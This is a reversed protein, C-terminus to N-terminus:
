LIATKIIESFCGRRYISELIRIPRVSIKIFIQLVGAFIFLSKIDGSRGSVISDMGFM